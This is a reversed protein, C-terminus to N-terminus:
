EKVLVEIRRNLERGDKEHDNSALPEKDGMGITYIRGESIEMAVLFNKVALARNESLWQNADSPGTSDTHGAVIIELKPYYNMTFLLEDLVTYSERRLQATGFDFYINDLIAKKATRYKSGLNALDTTEKEYQKYRGPDDEAIKSIVSKESDSLAPTAPQEEEVPLNPQEEDALLNFRDINFNKVLTGNSPLNSINFIETLLIEKGEKITVEYSTGTLLNATYAGAEDTSAEFLQKSINNSVFDIDLGGLENKTVVDYVTGEIDIRQAKYVYHIDYDFKDKQRDSSLFGFEGDPSIYFDIENDPTNIPYGLNEPASWSNNSANYTSRFIDYGGISNHGSSSFYLTNGDDTLFGNREDGESNITAPLPTPKSWKGDEDRTIEVLDFGKKKFNDDSAYIMRSRDNDLYFHFVSKMKGLKSDWEQLEGWKEGTRKSVWFGKDRFVYVEQGNSAVGFNALDSEISRLNAIGAPQGWSDDLNKIAYLSVFQEPSNDVSMFIFENLDPIYIPSFQPQKSNIKGEIATVHYDGVKNMFEKKREAIAIHQNTEEIIEKSKYADLKLFQNWATIAEDFQYRYDLIKGLFYYYFKDEKGYSDRYSLIRDLPRDQNGTLLLCLEVKYKVDQYNANKKVAERYYFLAEEHNEGYFQEEAIKYFYKANQALSVGALLCFTLNILIRTIM